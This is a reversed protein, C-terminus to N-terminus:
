LMGIKPADNCKPPVPVPLKSTAPPHNEHSVVTTVPQWDFHDKRSRVYRMYLDFAAIGVGIVSIVTSFSMEPLWPNSSSAEPSGSADDDLGRKMEEERKLEREYAAKEKERKIRTSEAVRKGAAVKKPDKVKPAKETSASPEKTIQEVDSM